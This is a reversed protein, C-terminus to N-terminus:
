FDKERRRKERSELLKAFSANVPPIEVGKLFDFPDDEVYGVVNTNYIASTQAGSDFDDSDFPVGKLLDLSDITRESGFDHFNNPLKPLQQKLESINIKPFFCNKNVRSNVKKKPSKRKKQPTKFPNCEIQNKIIEQKIQNKENGKSGGALAVIKEVSKLEEGELCFHKSSEKKVKKLKLQPWPPYDPPSPPPSPSPSPSPSGSERPTAEVSCIFKEEFALKELSTKDNFALMSPNGFFSCLDLNKSDLTVHSKLQAQTRLNM